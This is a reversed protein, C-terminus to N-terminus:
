RPRLSAVPQRRRHCHVAAVLYDLVPRQQLKCTQTVTLLRALATEGKASRNGYTIKRILVFLRLSREPFNNTPEVGEHEIFTFLKNWHEYFARALNRVERDQSDLYRSALRCIQKQIPISQEILETRSLLREGAGAEGRFRHWLAFMQSIASLMDRAFHVGDQSREYEQIGKLSRQLHAWCFQALGHHYSLYSPCRDSCLIGAFAEGLLQALVEVGRNRAIHFFVFWSTCMVWVWRKEGSTRSGTEDSNVVPEGPLAQALEEYPAQVADATEEWAKQVSGVSIVTGLLDTLVAQVDRRTLKRVVILYSIM